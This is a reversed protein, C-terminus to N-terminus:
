NCEYFNWLIPEWLLIIKSPAEAFIFGGRFPTQFSLNANPSNKEGPKSGNQDLVPSNTVSMNSAMQFFSFNGGKEGSTSFHLFLGWRKKRRRKPKLRSGKKTGFEFRLEKFGGFAWGEFVLGIFAVKNFALGELALGKLALEKLASGKFRNFTLGNFASGKCALGKFGLWELALGIFTLGGFTSGIYASREFALGIFFSGLLASEKLSFGIWAVSLLSHFTIKSVVVKGWPGTGM